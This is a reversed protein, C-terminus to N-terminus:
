KYIKLYSELNYDLSGFIIKVFTDNIPLIKAYNITEEDFVTTQTKAKIQAVKNSGQFFELFLERNINNATVKYFGPFIVGTEYVLTTPIMLTSFTNETNIFNDTEPVFDEDDSNLIMQPMLERPTNKKKKKVPKLKNITEEYQQPTIIKQSDFDKFM